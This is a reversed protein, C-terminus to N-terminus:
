QQSSNFLHTISEKRQDMAENYQGNLDTIIKTLEEQYKPHRTPDVPQSTEIGQMMARQKLEATIAEALQETTQEKHQNYQSLIQSLEDALLVVENGGGLLPLTQLARRSTSLLDEDRPLVINRLLVQVMGQRIERQKKEPQQELEFLLDTGKGAIFDAALRMGTKITDGDSENDPAAAAMKEARALVMEMTSKIEAMDEIDKKNTIDFLYLIYDSIIVSERTRPLLSLM